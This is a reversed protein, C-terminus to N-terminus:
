AFAEDPPIDVKPIQNFNYWWQDPVAVSPWLMELDGSTDVSLAMDMSATQQSLVDYGSILEQSPPPMVQTTDTFVDTPVHGPLSEPPPQEQQQPQRQQQQQNQIESSRSLDALFDIKVALDRMVTAASNAVRYGRGVVEFVTISLDISARILATYESDPYAFLYGAMTLAANWQWQFPEHWGILLVESEVLVQHMISTLVIGHRVAATANAFILPTETVPVSYASPFSIFPRYLNTCLSHYLLELLLRQRRLWLPAAKEIILPFSDTSLPIGEGMRKTRLADPVSQVWAHIPQVNSAHFEAYRELAAPDDYIVRGKVGSYYDSYREYLRTHVARAVLILNTNHLTYTLWNINDVPAFGSGAMNATYNDDAPFGCTTSSLDAYFPRGLKMCVKSEFAYLSWWLRKRQERKELPLQDSPENHLGIVHALRVAMSLATQAMNQFSACCLYLASLLYCQVTCITPSEQENHLLRQCRRYYFRGAISPDDKGLDIGAVVGNTTRQNGAMGIQMSVAIVIDILASPKRHKGPQILLSKYHDKFEKQNLLVMSAHYSQWFQDLFFGEQAPTLLSDTSLQQPADKHYSRREVDEPASSTGPFSRTASQLQIHDDPHLQQFVFALYKDMRSIYYFLSSPGYWAKQPSQGTSTYVGEWVRMPIGRLDPANPESGSVSEPSSSSPTLISNPSSVPVSSKTLSRERELQAELERVHHKLRDIERYAQPLTRRESPSKNICQEGRNICNRCPVNNDCKIRHMRCSDCARAVQQRKPRLPAEFTRQSTSESSEPKGSGAFSTFM